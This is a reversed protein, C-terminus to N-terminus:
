ESYHGKIKKNRTIATSDDLLNSAKILSNKGYKKRIEDVTKDKSEKKILEDHKEFLNLQLYDKNELKSLSINVQRIPEENYYRNLFLSCQEFIVKKDDTLIPLKQSHYFGGGETKSYKLGFSVLGCVKKEARLRSTLVEIMEEIIIPINYGYYDKFLVQSHSFSQEKPDSKLDSLKTYDIGNARYWLEEGYVGLKKVLANKNYNALDKISHIGLLKLKENLKSGIGWVKSPPSLNWLKTKVDDYTWKAINDKNHKAEIDMAVKALFINPGIGCTAILGTEKKISKLIDLAIEYDDKKYLNLYNTIDIFVEDISYNFLDKESVYKLYVNTVEKSKKIYLNMRPKVAEYKIYKPIEYLRSRSKIGKNRLYPSVALTIAGNGRSADAVVLPYNYMDLGRDVCECAAFFSKLDICLINRKQYLENM